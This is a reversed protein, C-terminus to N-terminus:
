FALEVDEDVVEVCEVVGRGLDLTLAPVADVRIEDHPEVGLEELESAWLEWLAVVVVFHLCHCHVPPVPWSACERVMLICAVGVGVVSM